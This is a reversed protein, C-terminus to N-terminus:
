PAKVTQDDTPHIKWSSRGVKQAAVTKCDIQEFKVNLVCNERFRSTRFIEIKDLVAFGLGCSVRLEIWDKKWDGGEQVLQETYKM